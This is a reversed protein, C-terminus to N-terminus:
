LVNFFNLELLYFPPHKSRKELEEDSTFLKLFIPQFLMPLSVFASCSSRRRGTTLPTTTTPPQTSNGKTFVVMKFGEYHFEWDTTFTV